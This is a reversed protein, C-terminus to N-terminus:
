TMLALERRMTSVQAQRFHAAAAAVGPGPACHRVLALSSAGSVHRFDDLTLFLSLPSCLYVIRGQRAWCLHSCELRGSILM